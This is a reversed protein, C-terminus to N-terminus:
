KKVGDFYRKYYKSFDESSDSKQKKPDDSKHKNEDSEEPLKRKKTPEDTNKHNKINDDMSKKRDEEEFQREIDGKTLTNLVTLM